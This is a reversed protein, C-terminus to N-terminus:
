EDVAAEIYDQFVEASVSDDPTVQEGWLDRARFTVTYVPQPRRGIRAALADPFNSLGREATITGAQGRLYNPLRNHGLRNTSSIRVVDGVRFRAPAPAASGDPMISPPVHPRGVPKEGRMWDDLDGPKLLGREELQKEMGALYNAPFCERAYVRVPLREVAARFGDADCWGTAMLAMMVRFIRREAGSHFATGEPVTWVEGFGQMGGLDHLSSM